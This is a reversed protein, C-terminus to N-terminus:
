TKKHCISLYKQVTPKLGHYLSECILAHGISVEKIHPIKQLFWSLNKLNLDHGANIDIGLAKIKESASIYTQIIKNIQSSSPEQKQPGPLGIFLAERKLNRSERTRPFSSTKQHSPNEHSSSSDVLYSSYAAAYAETYLEARDPKLQSLALFEKETLTFPDIFLSSRIKNQKLLKLVPKLLSLHEQLRWGANSTLVSPADPVLTCQNPQTEQMLQLFSSDPYGEVNFEVAKLPKLYQNIDRVDSYLIHRGDPRPHVTIGDAGFASLNKVAEILNPQNNGRSNRLTAIKNVNVSLKVM